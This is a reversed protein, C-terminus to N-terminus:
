GGGAQHGQSLLGAAPPSEPQVHLSLLCSGGEMPTLGQTAPPSQAHLFSPKVAGSLQSLQVPAVLVAGQPKNSQELPLAVLAARGMSLREEWTGLWGVAM